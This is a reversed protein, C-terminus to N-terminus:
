RQLLSGNGHHSCDIIISAIIALYHARRSEDIGKRKAAEAYGKMYTLPSLEHSISALFESREQKVHKLDEALITISCSLDGLEDNREM